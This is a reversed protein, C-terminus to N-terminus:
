GPHGALVWIGLVFFLASAAWRAYRLPVRQAFRAGFALVPLNVLLTGLTAGIVVMPLADFRAALLVTAIQTKDGIEALFFALTAAIFASRASGRVAPSDDDVDARLTWLAVAIFSAALLWRLVHDPLQQSLWTGVLGALSFNLLAALTIGGAIPWFRRYRTALLLVLLQSKDGIEAILAALTSVLLAELM